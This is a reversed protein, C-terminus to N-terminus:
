AELESIEYEDSCLWQFKGSELNRVAFWNDSKLHKPLKETTRYSGNDIIVEDPKPLIEIKIIKKPFTVIEGELGQFSMEPLVALYKKAIEM